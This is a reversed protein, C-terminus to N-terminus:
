VNFGVRRRAAVPVACCVVTGEDLPAEGPLELAGHFVHPHTLVQLGLVM